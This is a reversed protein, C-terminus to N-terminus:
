SLVNNLTTKNTQFPPLIHLELGRGKIIKGWLEVPRESSLTTHTTIAGLPVHEGHYLSTFLM